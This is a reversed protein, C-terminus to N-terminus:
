EENWTRQYNQELKDLVAQELDIGGISALQLLYLAVDALEDALAEEHAPHDQWQLLELVEGSEIMLSCALNKLTQPRLSDQQNWGRNNVFHNM